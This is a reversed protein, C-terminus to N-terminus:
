PSGGIVRIFLRDRDVPLGSDRTVGDGGEVEGILVPVDDPWYDTGERGASELASWAESTEKAHANMLSAFRYADLPHPTPLAASVLAAPVSPPIGVAAGAAIDVSQGRGIRPFYRLDSGPEHAVVRLLDQKLDNVVRYGKDAARFRVAGGLNVMGDERVLLTEWPRGQLSQLEASGPGLVLTRTLGSLASSVDLLSSADAAGVRLSGATSAFLARFRVIGARSADGGCEILSLRRARARGGKAVAGVCVILALTSLSWIPLEVFARMPASRRAARRFSIPGAALAYLVLLLAAVGISWRSGENPDLLRRAPEVHGEDFGGEGGSAAILAKRDWAARVLDVMSRRVWREDVFAPATPDFALIHVEGMGHRAAAGWRTPRLSGGTVSVLRRAVDDSPTVHVSSYSPGSGRRDPEDVIEFETSRAAAEAGETETALGGLLTTMRPHSLDGSRGISIALTGGGLAWDALALASKEPMAVLVESGVLVVTASGYGLAREPLAPEGSRTDVTAHTVALDLGESPAWARAGRRVAVREGRLAAELRGTRGLDFLLPQQGRSAPVPARAIVSGGPDRAIVELGKGFVDHWYLELTVQERPAVAFPARAAGGSGDAIEVTGRQIVSDAGRVRVAYSLWGHEAPVDAGLLPTASIEVPAAEAASALSALVLTLM